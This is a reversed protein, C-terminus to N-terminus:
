ASTLSCACVLGRVLALYKLLGSASSQNPAVKLIFHPEKWCVGPSIICVCVRVCVCVCVRVRVCVCVCACACACVCLCVCECVCVSVFTKVSVLMVM